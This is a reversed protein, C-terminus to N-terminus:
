RCAAVALSTCYLCQNLCGLEDILEELDNSFPLRDSTADKVLSSRAETSMILPEDNPNSLKSEDSSGFMTNYYISHLKRPNGVVACRPIRMRTVGVTKRLDARMAELAEELSM